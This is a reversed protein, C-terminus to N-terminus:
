AARLKLWSAAVLRLRHGRVVAPNLFAEHREMDYIWIQHREWPVWDPMPRAPAPARRATVALVLGEGALVRYVTSPSVWVIGEYSGRHALKRYGRDVEGFREFLELVAQREWPMIAHAAAGGGASDDLRGVDRRRWRRVRRDDVELVACARVAAWGQGVAGDVLELLGEKVAAPVRPPVAATVGRNGGPAPM